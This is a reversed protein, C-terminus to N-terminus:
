VESVVVNIKQEQTVCGNFFGRNVICDQYDRGHSIRIYTDDVLIDNTPDYGVWSGSVAAEVWAHSFGEGKMMGVAYRAPIGAMRLLAIMIHAYDQCVGKGVCLAQEATTNISTVGKQYKMDRYIEHMLQKAYAADSYADDKKHRNYYDTIMEGPKTYKSPYRYIQEEGSAKQQCSSDVQAAGSIEVQFDAHEAEIVGYVYKNGYADIDESVDCEPRILVSCETIQQREDTQPIMRLTFQHCRVKDSFVLEM